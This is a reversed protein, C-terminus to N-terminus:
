SRTVECSVPLSSFSERQCLNPILQLSSVLHRQGTMVKLPNVVRGSITYSVAEEPADEVLSSEGDLYYSSCFSESFLWLILLVFIATPMFCFFSIFFRVVSIWRCVNLFERAMGSQRLLSSRKVRDLTIDLNTDHLIPVGHRGTEYLTHASMM